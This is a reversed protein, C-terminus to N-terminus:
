NYEYLISNNNVMYLKDNNIIPFHNVNNVIKYNKILDGSNYNFSSILGCNCSVMIKGNVLVPGYFLKNKHKPKILKDLEVFWKIQGTERVISILRNKNDIIFLLNKTLWPTKRASVRKEWVRIGSLYEFSALWGDTSVAYIHENYIVPTADIDYFNFNEILADKSGINDQWIIEGTKNDLIIINGDIDGTAIILKNASFGAHGYQSSLKDAFDHQWILKGNLYSLSYIKNDLSAVYVRDNYIYPKARLLSEFKKKWLIKGDQANLAFLMNSGFSIYLFDKYYGIGGKLHNFKDTSQDLSVRWILKNDHQNYAAVEGRSNIIYIVKNIILPTIFFPLKSGKKVYKIKDLKKLKNTFNNTIINGYNNGINNYIFSEQLGSISFNDITEDIELKDDISTFVNISDKIDYKKDSCSICLLLLLYLFVCRLINNPLLIYCM